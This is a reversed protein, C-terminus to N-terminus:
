RNKQVKTTIPRLDQTADDNVGGRVLLTRTPSLDKTARRGSRKSKATGPRSTM